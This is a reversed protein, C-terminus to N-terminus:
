KQPAAVPCQAPAAWYRCYAIFSLSTAYMIFLYLIPVIAFDPQGLLGVAIVVSLLYNQIGVEITITRAQAVNLGALRAALMGLSMMVLNLAVTVDWAMAWMRAFSDAVYALLVAMTFLVVVFSIRTAWPQVKAALAPAARRLAMGVIAPLVILNFIRAMSRGVPLHIQRGTGALHDLVLNVLLPITFVVIAGSSVTLVISLAVDGRALYSFFNSTAGSPCCALIMLGVAVPLSPSFALVLAFAVAPLLVIQAALGTLVARPVVLVQRFDAPRLTLGMTVMIVVLAWTGLLSIDIGLFTVSLIGAAPTNM